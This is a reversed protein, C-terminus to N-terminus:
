RDIILDIMTSFCAKSCLEPRNFFDGDIVMSAVVDVAVVRWSVKQNEAFNECLWKTFSTFLDDSLVVALRAICPLIKERYELRDSCKGCVNQAIQLALPMLREPENQVLGLLFDFARDRLRIVQAPIKCNSPLQRGDCDLLLLRPLVAKVILEVSKDESAELELRDYLEVIRESREVATSM